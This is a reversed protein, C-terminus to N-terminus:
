EVEGLFKVKSSSKKRPLPPPKGAGIVKVPAMAGRTAPIAKRTAPATKPAYRRPTVTVGNNNFKTGPVYSGIPRFVRGDMRGLVANSNRDVVVGGSLLLGNAPMGIPGALRPPPPTRNTVPDPVWATRPLPAYGGSSTPEITSQQVPPPLTDPLTAEFPAPEVHRMQPVSELIRRDEETIQGGEIAQNEFLEQIQRNIAEVNANERSINFSMADRVDEQAKRQKATEPGTFGTIKNIAQNKQDEYSKLLSTADSLRQKLIATQQGQPSDPAFKSTLIKIAADSRAAANALDVKLNADANTEWVRQQAGLIARANGSQAMVQTRWNSNLEHNQKQILEARDKESLGTFADDPIPIGLRAMRSISQLIESRVEPRLYQNTLTGALIRVRMIEQDAIKNKEVAKEKEALRRNDETQNQLTAALRDQTAADQNSEQILQNEQTNQAQADEYEKVMDEYSQNQTANQFTTRAGQNQYKAYEDQYQQLDRGQGGRKVGSLVPAAVNGLLRSGGFLLALPLLSIATKLTNNENRHGPLPANPMPVPTPRSPYLRSFSQYARRPEPVFGGNTGGNNGIPLPTPAPTAQAQQWNPDYTLTGIAPPLTRPPADSPGISPVPLAEMPDYEPNVDKIGGDVLWQLMGSLEPPMASSPFAAEMSAGPAPVLAPEVPANAQQFDFGTSYPASRLVRGFAPGPKIQAM